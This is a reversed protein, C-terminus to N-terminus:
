PNSVLQKIDSVKVDAIIVPLAILVEKLNKVYFSVCLIEKLTKQPM